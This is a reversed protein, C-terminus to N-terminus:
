GVNTLTLILGWDGGYVLNSIVANILPTALIHRLCHEIQQPPKPNLGGRTHAASGVWRFYM